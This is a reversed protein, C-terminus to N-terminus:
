SGADEECHQIGIVHLGFAQEIKDELDM